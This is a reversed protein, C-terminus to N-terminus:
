QEWLLRGHAYVDVLGTESRLVVTRELLPQFFIQIGQGSQRLIRIKGPPM